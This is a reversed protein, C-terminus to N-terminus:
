ADPIFVIEPHTHPIGLAEAMPPVTLAAYPNSTSVQDKLIDQVITHKEVKPLAREPFKNVTRLAWEHGASDELQLSKTQKGGGLNTISLGGKEKAIHMVRMTVPTAWVTRYNRGFFVKYIGSKKNYAPHAAVKVSDTNTRSQSYCAIPRVISFVIALFFIPRM